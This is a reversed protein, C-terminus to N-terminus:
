SNRPNSRTCGVEEIITSAGGISRNALEVTGGGGPLNSSGLFAFLLSFGIASGMLAIADDVANM